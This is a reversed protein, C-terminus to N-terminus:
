HSVIEKYRTYGYEHLKFCRDFHAMNHDYATESPVRSMGALSCLAQTNITVHRWKMSPIPFVTFRRPVNKYIIKRDEKDELSLGALYGAVCREQAFLAFVESIKALVPVFRGPQAKLNTLNCPAPILSFWDDNLYLMTEWVSVTVM